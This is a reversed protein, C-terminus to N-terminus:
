SYFKFDRRMVREVFRQVKKLLKYQNDSNPFDSYYGLPQSMFSDFELESIGMKKCFYGKNAALEEDSCPPKQLEKIAERRSIQGSVIMSSLHPRRKDYGFRVPLYYNQFFRTFISEGHKYGYSRWGILELESIAKKRDFPMLDLFRFDRMKVVFPYWFYYQFFSITKYHKLQIKGFSKHIAKLNIADMASAHWSTPFISETAINGGSLITSIKYKVAFHYMNSFFAHDQPVDQNAVGANLYALQLDRMENWDMVHTHLEYGCHKVIKEINSVALESNWGADVHMVLPRLGLEKIKLALYSSDVGGSLGLICDYENGGGSKKIQEVIKKLKIDSRLDNKWRPEVNDRFNRCHNCIGLKDFDIEPDSSDM